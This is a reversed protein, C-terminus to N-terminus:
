TSTDIPYYKQKPNYIEGEPIGHIMHNEQVMEIYFPLNHNDPIAILRARAARYGREEMIVRGFAEIIGIFKTAKYGGFAKYISINEYRYMAHFGCKCNLHPIPNTNSFEIKECKATEITDFSWLFGPYFPSIVKKDERQDFVKWGYLGNQM